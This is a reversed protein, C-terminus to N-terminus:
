LSDYMEDALMLMADDASILESALDALLDDVMRFDLKRPNLHKAMLHPDDPFSYEAVMEILGRTQGYQADMLADSLYLALGDDSHDSYGDSYYGGTSYHSGRYRQWDDFDPKLPDRAVPLSDWDVNAAAGALMEFYPINLSENVTHENSYGISINTCEPILDIFEATDTYVGTDDNLHMLNQDFSGLADCLSQGFEDSCCRGWGQHTIVSDIGRRDFAIARDFQRLLDPKNKALWTAGIGGKEEGVTFVYYAPVGSHILHMLMACGAGDDAGLVDGDAHWHTRTKKIRNKGSNRHVTDVHAVFLTRNATSARTDIHMNGCDDFEAGIGDPLNAALWHSFKVTSAAGHPRKVSLARDLTKYLTIM